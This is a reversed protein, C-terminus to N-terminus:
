ACVVDDFLPRLPDIVFDLAGTILVTRHGLARHERVRRIGAPFAKKLIHDSFLEWSDERLRGVPADEYKRYFHRLFDGRDKRDLALLSPAEKLLALVFGVREDAPLRRTALWAYSEVVNSAILTNELDFAALQRDRSLVARKGWLPLSTLAREAAGLLKVARKLQRQVRGRGPFSWDPVVIPQGERDYLPHEVFWEHTLDHLRGYRLPNIAGTAAHFVDPGDPNPGRAAVAILAAVVLDVPVVDIIGEPIGPFETLLGRGYSIIVPE